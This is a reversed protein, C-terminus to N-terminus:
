ALRQNFLVTSYASFLIFVYRWKSVKLVITLSINLASTSKKKKLKVEKPTAQNQRLREPFRYINSEHM